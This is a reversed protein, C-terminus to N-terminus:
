PALEPYAQLEHPGVGHARALADRRRRFLEGVMARRSRRLLRLALLGALPILVLLVARPDGIRHEDPAVPPVGWFLAAIALVVTGAEAPHRKLVERLGARVLRAECRRCLRIRERGLPRADLEGSRPRGGRSRLGYVYSWDREATREGCDTCPESGPVFPEAPAAAASRSSEM